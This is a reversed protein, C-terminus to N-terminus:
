DAPQDSEARDLYERVARRLHEAADVGDAKALENLRARDGLYLRTGQRDRDLAPADARRRGAM